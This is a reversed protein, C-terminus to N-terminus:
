AEVIELFYTEGEFTLGIVPEGDIKGEDEIRAETGIVMPLVAYVM